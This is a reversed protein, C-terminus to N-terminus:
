RGGAAFAVIARFTIKVKPWVQCLQRTALGIGGLRAEMMRPYRRLRPTHATRLVASLFLKPRAQNKKGGPLPAKRANEPRPHPPVRIKVGVASSPAYLPYYEQLDVPHHVLAVTM